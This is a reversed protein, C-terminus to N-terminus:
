TNHRWHRSPTLLCSRVHQSALTLERSTNASHGCRKFKKQDFWPPLKGALTTNQVNVRAGDQLLVKFQEDVTLQCSGDGSSTTSRSPSM